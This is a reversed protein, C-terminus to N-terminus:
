VRNHEAEVQQSASTAENRESTEQDRLKQPTANFFRKQNLIILIVGITISSDAVNFVPRFFQFEEGGWIPLWNPFHGELIPFYLMDVVRGQLFGAYGGGPPFLQAVNATYPQSDSFILGYFASDLINGVAGAFILAVSIVLGAHSKKEILRSLYWGFFIAAAIRFLSLVLKGATGGYEFGFAMGANEIFHIYFWHGIVPFSQDMYMHTKVLIKSVQDIVLVLIITGLAWKRLDSQRSSTM